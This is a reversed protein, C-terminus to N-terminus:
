VVLKWASTVRSNCRSSVWWLSITPPSAQTLARAIEKKKQTAAASSAKCRFSDNGTALIHCGHTLRDLLATTMKTDGFVIAWESFSLNGLRDVIQKRGIVSRAERQERYVSPNAKRVIRRFSRQASHSQASIIRVTHNHAARRPFRRCPQRV